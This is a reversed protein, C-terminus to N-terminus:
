PCDALDDLAEREADALRRLMNFTAKWAVRGHADLFRMADGAEEFERLITAILETRARGPTQDRIDEYEVDIWFRLIRSMRIKMCADRDYFEYSTAVFFILLASFPCIKGHQGLAIEYLTSVRSRSRTKGHFHNAAANWHYSWRKRPVPNFDTKKLTAGAAFHSDVCCEDRLRVRAM